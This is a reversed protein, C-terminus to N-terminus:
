IGFILHSPGGPLYINIIGKHSKGRNAQDDARLIQPLSLGGLAMGGITLFGRRSINDCAGAQRSSQGTITLM